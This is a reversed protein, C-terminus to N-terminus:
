MIEKLFSHHACPHNWGWKTRLACPVIPEPRHNAGSYGPSRRSVHLCRLPSCRHRSTSRAALLSEQMGCYRDRTCNLLVLLYISKKTGFTIHCYCYYKFKASRFHLVYGQSMDQWSESRTMCQLQLVSQARLTCLLPLASHVQRTYVIWVLHVSCQELSIQVPCTICLHLLEHKCWHCHECLSLAGRTKQVHGIGVIITDRVTTANYPAWAYHVFIVTCRAASNRLSSWYLHVLCKQSSNQM